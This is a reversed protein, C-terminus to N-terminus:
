SKGSSAGSRCSECVPLQDDELDDSVSDIVAGCVGCHNGVKDKMAKVVMGKIVDDLGDDLQIYGM